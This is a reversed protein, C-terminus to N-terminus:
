PGRMVWAAVKQHACDVTGAGQALRTHIGRKLFDPAYRTLSFTIRAHNFDQKGVRLSLLRDQEGVALRARIHAVAQPISHSVFKRGDSDYSAYVDFEGKPAFSPSRLFDTVVQNTEAVSCGPPLSSPPQASEKSGGCAALAGAVLALAALRLLV